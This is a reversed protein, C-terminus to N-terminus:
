PENGWVGIVTSPRQALATGLSPDLRVLRCALILAFALVVTSASWAVSVGLLGYAPGLTAIVLLRLALVAAMISWRM